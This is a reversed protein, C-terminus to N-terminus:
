AQWLLTDQGNWGFFLLLLTCLMSNPFLSEESHVRVLRIVWVDWVVMVVM